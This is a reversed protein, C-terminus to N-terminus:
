SLVCTLRLLRIPRVEERSTSASYSGGMEEADKYLKLASRHNTGSFAAHELLHTTGAVSEYRSGAKFHLGVSAVAGHADQSVVTV